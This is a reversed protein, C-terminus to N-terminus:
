STYEGASGSKCFPLVIISDHISCWRCGCTIPNMETNIEKAYEARQSDGSSTASPLETLPESQHQKKIWNYLRVYIGAAKEGSCDFPAVVCVHFILLNRSMNRWYAWLPLSSTLHLFLSTSAPLPTNDLAWHNISRQPAEGEKERWLLTSYIASNEEATISTQRRQSCHKWVRVSIKLLCFHNRETSEPM